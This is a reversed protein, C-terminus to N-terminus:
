HLEAPVASSLASGAGPALGRLGDQILGIDEATFPLPNHAMQLFDRTDWNAKMVGTLSHRPVRQLLHTIEHTMVHALLTPLGTASGANQEIRDILVVIHVAEYLLAYAMAGPHQNPDMDAAFDLMVIRAPQLGRCAAAGASYWELAVGATAFMRSSIAKARNVALASAYNNSNVCVRVKPAPDENQACIGAATMLVAGLM